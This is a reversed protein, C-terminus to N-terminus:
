RGCATITRTPAAPCLCSAKPTSSSPLTLNGLEQQFRNLTMKFVVVGLVKGTSEKVPHSAYFGRKKSTVGLAFYRGPKGAIAEQFYPRFAYKQGVFSDPDGRNSSAITTGSADLLYAVSAGFRQQYRDLVSNAQALTEPSGSGLVPAIWPSGSMAKVAEEAERIEFTLRQIALQNHVLSDKRMQQWGLNGLSQTLVGAAPWFSRWSQLWSICTAPGTGTTGNM